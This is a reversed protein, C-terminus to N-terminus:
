KNRLKKDLKIQVIFYLILLILAIINNILIEYKTSIVLASWLLIWLYCTKIKYIFNENENIIKYYNYSFYIGILFIISFLFVKLEFHEKPIIVNILCILSPQNYKIYNIIFKKNKSIKMNSKTYDEQFFLKLHVM